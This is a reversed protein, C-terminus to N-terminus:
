PANRGPKTILVKAMTVVLPIILVAGWFLMQLFTGDTKWNIFSFLTVAFLIIAPSLLVLTLTFSGKSWIGFVLSSISAALWSCAITPIAVLFYGAGGDSAYCFSPALLFIVLLALQNRM